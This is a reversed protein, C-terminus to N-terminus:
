KKPGLSRLYNVVNWIDDDKLKDKFPVMNFDPAVGNKRESHNPSPRVEAVVSSDPRLESVLAVVHSVDPVAASSAAPAMAALDLNHLFALSV